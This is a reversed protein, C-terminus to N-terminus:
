PAFTCLLHMVHEEFKAEKQTDAFHHYMKLVAIKFTKSFQFVELIYTNVIRNRILWILMQCFKVVVSFQFVDM